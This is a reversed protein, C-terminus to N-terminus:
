LKVAALGMQLLISLVGSVARQITAANAASTRNEAAFVANVKDEESLLDANPLKGLIARYASDTQGKAIQGIWGLIENDAMAFFAPTYETIVASWQPNSAAFALLASQGATSLKPAVGAVAQGIVQGAAQALGEVASNTAVTTM